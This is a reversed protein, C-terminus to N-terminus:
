PTLLLMPRGIAHARILKLDILRICVTSTTESALTYAMIISPREAFTGPLCTSECTVFLRQSSRKEVKLVSLRDSVGGGREEALRARTLIPTVRRTEISM